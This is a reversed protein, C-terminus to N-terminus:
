SKHASIFVAGIMYAIFRRMKIVVQMFKFIGAKMDDTFRKRGGRYVTM